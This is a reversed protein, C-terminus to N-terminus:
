QDQGPDLCTVEGPVWVPSGVQSGSPHGWGPHLCTVSGAWPGSLHGWRPDLCTLGGPGLRTIWPAGAPGRSEPHAKPPEESAGAPLGWPQSQGRVHPLEPRRIARATPLRSEAGVRKAPPARLCPALREWFGNLFLAREWMGRAPGLQCEFGPRWPALVQCTGRAPPHAPPALLRAECHRRQASDRCACVQPAWGPSGRLM